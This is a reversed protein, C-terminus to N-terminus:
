GPYRSKPINALFKDPQHAYTNLPLDGRTLAQLTDTLFQNVPTPVHHDLGHRVVAGNLWGVESRNRGAYLDIHFSPMKDGRGGGAAKKILPRSIFGPLQMGLMLARAPVGPLNVVRLRSARMVKLAERLMNREFRFLGPHTYIESPAMNLIASTANTSLNLLLKTWKMDLARPYLRANLGASNLTEAIFLSLPHGDAVGVGRLRELTINGVARRGISSTVSGALTNQTGVVEAIEHENDVGNSLCLIPPLKESFPRMSGVAAATDFSKLAFIAFDFNGSGLAEELSSCFTVAPEELTQIGRCSNILDLQLGRQQLELVAEPREVFVVSHGATALSGGIYTGIAGAGFSLVRAKEM